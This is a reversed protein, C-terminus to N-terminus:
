KEPADRCLALWNLEASQKPSLHSIKQKRGVRIAPEAKESDPQSNFDDKIRQRQTFVPVSQSNLSAIRDM